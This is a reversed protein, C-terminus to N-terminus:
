QLDYGDKDTMWGEGKEIDLYHLQAMYCQLIEIIYATKRAGLSQWPSYM